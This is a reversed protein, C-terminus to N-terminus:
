SIRSSGRIEDDSPVRPNEGGIDWLKIIPGITLDFRGKSIRSYNMAEELVKYTDDQLKYTKGANNNLSQLDSKERNITMLNEIERLRDVVKEVVMVDKNDYIQIDVITGLIFETTKIPTIVEEGNGKDSSVNCGILSSILLISLLILIIKKMIEEMKLKNKIFM